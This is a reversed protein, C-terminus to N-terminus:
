KSWPPVVGFSRAYAILQGLHEYNHGSMLMVAGMRPTEMGFYKIQESMSEDDISKVTAKAFAISEKLVKLAEERNTISKEFGRPNLGEPLEKGLMASIGYNASAAHLITERVSRIGEAPRWKFGDESFAEALDVFKGTERDFNGLWSKQFTSLNEGSKHAAGFSSVTLGVLLLASVLLKSKIM